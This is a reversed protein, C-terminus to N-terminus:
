ACYFAGFTQDFYCTCGPSCGLDTGAESCSGTCAGGSGFRGGAGPEFGERDRAHPPPAVGSRGGPNALSPSAASAVGPILALVSGALATGIMELARRRPVAGSALGKALEDLHHDESASPM